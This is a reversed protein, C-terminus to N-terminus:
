FNKLNKRLEVVGYLDRVMFRFGFCVSSFLLLSFLYIGHVQAADGSNLLSSSSSVEAIHKSPTVYLLCTSDHTWHERDIAMMGGPTYSALKFGQLSLRTRGQLAMRDLHKFGQLRSTDYRATSDQGLPAPHGRRPPTLPKQSRGWSEMPPAPCGVEIIPTPKTPVFQQSDHSLPTNSISITTTQFLKLYNLCFIYLSIVINRM